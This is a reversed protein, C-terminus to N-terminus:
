ASSGRSGPRSSELGAEHLEESTLSYGILPRTSPDPKHKIGTRMVQAPEEEALAPPQSDRQLAPSSTASAANGAPVSRISSVPIRGIPAAGAIQSPSKPVQLERDSQALAARGADSRTLVPFPTGTVHTASASGLVLAEAQARSAQGGLHRALDARLQDRERTMQTLLALAQDRENQCRSLADLATGCDADLRGIDTEARSLKRTLEEARAAASTATSSLARNEERSERLMQELTAHRRRLEGLQQEHEDWLGAIFADQQEFLFARERAAERESRELAQELIAIRHKFTLQQEDASAMARRLQELEAVIEAKADQASGVAATLHQITRLVTALNAEARTCAALAAQAHEEGHVAFSSAVVMGSTARAPAIGSEFVQSLSDPQGSPPRLTETSQDAPM